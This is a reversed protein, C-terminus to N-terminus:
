RCQRYKQDSLSRRRQTYHNMSSASQPQRMAADISKIEEDLSSCISSNSSGDSKGGSSSGQQQRPQQQQQKKMNAIYVQENFSLGKPTEYQGIQVDGNKCDGNSWYTGGGARCERIIQKEAQSIVSFNESDVIKGSQGGACPSHSYSNGCRYIQASADLALALLFLTLFKKM